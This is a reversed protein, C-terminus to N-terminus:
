PAIRLCSPRPLAIPPGAARLRGTQSDIWFVAVNDGPLNACLLLRGDPTIALNQPGKGLSPEIGILTLRGAEDLRFAALSDHGRNTAYLFRGDPTIKLDAGYSTGEYGKPLTSITERAVLAGFEADFDFRTVSNGLENIVYAQKGQPHFTLHRPGAGSPTRVFPPQHPSLRAEAADLRYCVVQDLGLDAAYAFRNDPSVVICHAHPGEQRAPNVSSGAHQLFSVAAGLGGDKQVPLAAVSGSAYNAVLVTRGTADIDLYCAASGRASQRNLLGLQGDRGVIEFAAVEEPEAGGFTHAHVAYLTRGRPYRPATAQGTHFARETAAIRNGNAARLAGGM